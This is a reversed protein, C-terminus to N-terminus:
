EAPPVTVCRGYVAEARQSSRFGDRSVCPNVNRLVSRRHEGTYLSRTRRVCGFSRSGHTGATTRCWQRAEEGAKADIELRVVWRSRALPVRRRSSTDLTRTAEDSRREGHYDTLLRALSRVLPYAARWFDQRKDDFRRCRINRCSVRM